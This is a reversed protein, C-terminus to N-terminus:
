TEPIAPPKKIIFTLAFYNGGATNELKATYNYEGPESAIKFKINGKGEVYYSNGGERTYKNSDSYFAKYSFEYEELPNYDVEYEKGGNNVHIEITEGTTRVRCYFIVYKSPLEDHKNDDCGSCAFLCVPLILITAMCLLLTKKWM